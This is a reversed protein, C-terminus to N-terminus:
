MRWREEGLELVAVSRGARSMRSAAVGGGYGSGVVVVDYEQKLQPVPRSLRPYKTSRTHTQKTNTSPSESDKLQSHILAVPSEYVAIAALFESFRLYKKRWELIRPISIHFFLVLLSTLVALVIM